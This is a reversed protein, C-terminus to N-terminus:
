RSIMGSVAVVDTATTLCRCRMKAACPKGDVMTLSLPGCNEPSANAVKQEVYLMDCRVDLGYYGCDLPSASRATRM